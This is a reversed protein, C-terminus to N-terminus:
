RRELFPHPAPAKAEPQMQGILSRIAGRALRARTDGSPPATRAQCLQFGDRECGALGAPWRPSRARRARSRRSGAGDACGEGM